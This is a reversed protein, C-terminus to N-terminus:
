LNALLDFLVAVLVGTGFGITSYFLFEKFSM